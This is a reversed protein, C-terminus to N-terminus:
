KIVSMHLVVGPDDHPNYITKPGPNGRCVISVGAAHNKAFNATITMGTVSQVAVVEASAGTDIELLMGPQIM